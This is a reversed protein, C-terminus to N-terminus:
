VLILRDSFSFSLSKLKSIQPQPRYVTTFTFTFKHLAHDIASGPRKTEPFSGIHFTISSLFGRADAPIRFESFHLWYRIAIGVSSDRDWIVIFVTQNM